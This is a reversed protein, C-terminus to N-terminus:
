AEAVATRPPTRRAGEPLGAELALALAGAGLCAGAASLWLVAPSAALLFAGTVSGLSLGLQSTTLWLAMSRGRLSPRALDAVLAGQVAGHLCEGLAFAGGVFVFVATAAVAPLWLGAGLVALWCGCWLAGIAAFVPMRRRGELGKAIPLQAVIITLSNLLFIMGIGRESMGAETKGFVPLVASLLAYGAAVLVLNLAIAGLLPRDQLLEMYRGSKGEKQESSRGVPPVFALACMFGVFSAADLLFLATFTAPHDTSAILGGIASGLGFGLSWTVRQMAYAAHRREQPTLGTVLTSHSPWFFGKGAGAVAAVFFALWADDRVLSFGGFGLALLALSAAASGRAGLRDVVAGGVLGSLPAVGYMTAVIAGSTGLSFGRVNHLYIVLFPMVLGEGIQNAFSGAELVWVPRPLRPNLSRLYLAVEL